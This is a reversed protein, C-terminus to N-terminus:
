AKINEKAPNWYITRKKQLSLNIMHACAAARHGMLADQVSPQRAKVAEFFHALHIETADRGREEYTESNVLMGPNWTPPTEEAKVKPDSYYAQELESPWSEVVWRNDEYVNEPTFVLRRGRFAMSAETGLIEFGSESSSQNNFTSSLNVTFGEPYVLIANITDPVDRSEKWRYLEGTATASAPMKAGTVHHISTVLHVFLDTAIGGSYDWYCRWRFFRELSFPRKPAPGLFQEWNVTKESADPPIPYIWAGSATNRNYSARIMTLQGLRGAQFIERAKQQTASSMGQSGVQVIRDTKKATEIIELGEEVSFTMPKEIYIDKGAQLAEVAMTKHWHDPTGIFVTDVDKNELIERYDQYIRARGGTRERARQARGSYADVLAVIEAQPLTMAATMLQQARAGSGLIGVTIRDNPPVPRAFLKPALAVGGGGLASQKMFERRNM